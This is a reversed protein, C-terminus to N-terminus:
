AGWPNAAWFAELKPWHSNGAFHMAFSEAFTESTAGANNTGGEATTLFYNDRPGWMGAPNGTAIDDTRAELFKAHTSKLTGDAADFAHGAEHGLLDPTGHPVPGENPGPVKRKGGDDMTGVVVKKIKGSYVGPVKDWTSGAPWGRPLVGSLEPLADTVPGRCCETQIGAKNLEELVKKSMGKMAQAVAKADDATSTGSARLNKGIEQAVDEKTGGAVLSRKVRSSMLADTEDLGAKVFGDADKAMKVAEDDSCNEEVLMKQAYGAMREAQAEDAGADQLKKKLAPKKAAAAALKDALTKVRACLQPLQKVAITAKPWGKLEAKSAVGDSDLLRQELDKIEAAIAAAQGHAKLAKIAQEAKDREVKYAPFDTAFENVARTVKAAAFYVEESISKATKFDGKDVQWRLADLRKRLQALQPAMITKVQDPQGDVLKKLVDVPDVAWNKQNRLTEPAEALLKAVRTRLATAKGLPAVVANAAAAPNTQVQKGIEARATTLAALEKDLTAQLAPIVLADIDPKTAALAADFDALQKVLGPSKATVPPAKPVTGGPPTKAGTNVPPAKPVAGGTGAAVTGGTGPPPPPAMDDGGGQPAAVNLRKLGLTQLLGM